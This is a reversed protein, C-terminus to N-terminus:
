KSRSNNTYQKNNTPKNDGVHGYAEARKLYNKEWGKLNNYISNSKTKRAM